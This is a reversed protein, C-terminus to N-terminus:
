QRVLLAEFDMRIWYRKITLKFNHGKYAWFDGVSINTKVWLMKNVPSFFSIFLVVEECKTGNLKQFM